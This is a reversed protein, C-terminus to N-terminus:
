KTVLLLSNATYASLLAYLVSLVHLLRGVSGLIHGLIILKLDCVRGFLSSYM